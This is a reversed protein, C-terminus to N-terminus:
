WNVKPSNTSTDNNRARQRKQQELKALQLPSIKQETKFSQLVPLQELVRLIQLLSLLTGGNGKEIQGVTSRNIGASDAVQQQTKNQQLRTEQIFQGILNLVGKDSMSYWDISAKEM